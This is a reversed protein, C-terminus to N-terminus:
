RTPHQALHPMELTRHRHQHHLQNTRRHTRTQTAAAMETEMGMVMAMAMGAKGMARDVMTTTLLMKRRPIAKDMRAKSLGLEAMRLDLIRWSRVTATMTEM